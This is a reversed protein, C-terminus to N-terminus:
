EVLIDALSLAEDSFQYGIEEARGLFLALRQRRPLEVPLTEPDTGNFVKIVMAGMQAGMDRLDPGYSMVSDGRIGSPSIIPIHDRKVLKQLAVGAGKVVADVPMFVADIEGPAFSAFAADAEEATTVAITVLEVGLKPAVERMEKIGPFSTRGSSHVILVREISPDVRLLVELRKAAALNIGAMTGTMKGGPQSLTEVFGTEEPNGVVSFILPIDTGRTATKAAVAPPDSLAVIVDVNAAIMENLYGELLSTDARVNRYLYNINQGEVYGSKALDEKLGDVIPDLADILTLVGVLKVEDTNDTGKSCGGLAFVLTLSAVILLTLPSRRFWTHIKGM